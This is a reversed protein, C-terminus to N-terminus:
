HRKDVAPEEHELYDSLSRGIRYWRSVTRALGREVDLWVLPSTTITGDRLRPHGSVFGVLVTAGEYSETRHWGDLLPAAAIEDATPGEGRGLSKLAAVFQERRRDQYGEPLAWPDGATDPHPAGLQLRRGDRLIVVDPEIHEAFGGGDPRSDIEGAIGLENDADCVLRWRELCPLNTKSM